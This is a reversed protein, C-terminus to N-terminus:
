IVIALTIIWQILPVSLLTTRGVRKQDEGQISRAGQYPIERKSIGKMEQLTRNRLILVAAKEGVQAVMVTMIWKRAGKPGITVAAGGM